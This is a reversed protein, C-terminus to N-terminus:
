GKDHSGRGRKTSSRKPKATGSPSANKASNKKADASEGRSAGAAEAARVAQTHEINLRALQGCLDEFRHYNAIDERLQGAEEASVSRTHNRGDRWVQFKHYPGLRVTSKGDACRRQFYQESVTGRQMLEIAALEDLIQQRDRSSAPTKM